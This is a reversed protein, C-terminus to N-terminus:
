AGRPRHPEEPPSAQYQLGGVGEMPPVEVSESPSIPGFVEPASPTTADAPSELLFAPLEVVEQGVDEVIFAPLEVWEPEFMGPPPEHLWYDADLRLSQVVGSLQGQGAPLRGLKVLGAWAGVQPALRVRKPVCGGLDTFCEPVGLRPHAQGERGLGERTKFLVSRASGIPSAITESKSYSTAKINSPSQSLNNQNKLESTLRAAKLIMPPQTLTPM